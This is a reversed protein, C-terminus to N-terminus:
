LGLAVLCTYLIKVVAIPIAGKDQKFITFLLVTSVIELGVIVSLSVLINPMTIVIAEVVLIFSYVPVEFYSLKIRRLNHRFVTRYCVYKNDQDKSVKISLITTIILFALICAFLIASVWLRNDIQTIGIITFGYINTYM